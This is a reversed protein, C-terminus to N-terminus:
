KFWIMKIFIAIFFGLALLGVLLGTRVNNPKKQDTMCRQRASSGAVGMM